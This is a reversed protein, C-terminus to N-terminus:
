SYPTSDEEIVMCIGPPSEDHHCEEVRYFSPEANPQGPNITVANDFRRRTEEILDNAPDWDTFALIMILRYFM